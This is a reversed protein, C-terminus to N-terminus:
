GYRSWMSRNIPAGALTSSGASTPPAGGGGFDLDFKSAGRLLTGAAALNSSRAAANGAMRASAGEFRRASAATEQGIAREEGQYLALAARYEGEGEIDGLLDVITPDLAGAGSAAAVAQGRSAVLDAEKRQIIAERQAAAREQGAIRERQAAEFDAAQQLARGQAKAAKGQQVMGAAGLITGAALAVDGVTLATTGITAIEIGTM